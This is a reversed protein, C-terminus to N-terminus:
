EKGQPFIDKVALKFGPLVDEGDFIDDLELKHLQITEGQGLRYIDVVQEDPYVVWVLQTGANLYQEVKNLMQRPRNSPSIVEVALDPAIMFKQPLRPQREYSIFSADPIVETEDSLVYSVSDPFAFGRDDTELFRLIAAYIIGAIYAHLPSPAPVEIIEGNILEFRKEANEPRQVFAEFAAQTTKERSVSAM